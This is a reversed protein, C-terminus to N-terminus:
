VMLIGRQQQECGVCRRGRRKCTGRDNFPPFFIFYFFEALSAGAEEKSPKKKKKNKEEGAPRTNALLSSEQQRSPIRRLARTKWGTTCSLSSVSKTYTIALNGSQPFTRSIAKRKFMSTKTQPVFRQSFM